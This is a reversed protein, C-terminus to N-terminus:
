GSFDIKMELNNQSIEAFLYHKNQIKNELFINTKFM